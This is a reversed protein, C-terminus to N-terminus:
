FSSDIHTFFQITGNYRGAPADDKLRAYVYFDKKGQELEDYTATFIPFASDSYREQRQYDKYIYLDTTVGEKSKHTMTIAGESNFNGISVSISDTLDLDYEGISLLCDGGMSGTFDVNEPISLYFSGYSYATVPMDCGGEYYDNAAFATTATGLMLVLSLVLAIIKKM